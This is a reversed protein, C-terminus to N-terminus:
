FTAVAFTISIVFVTYAKKPRQVSLDIFCFLITLLGVKLRSANCRPVTKM